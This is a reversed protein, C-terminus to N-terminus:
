FQGRLWKTGARSCYKSFDWIVNEQCTTLPTELNGFVIDTGKLIPAVNLFPFDVGKREMTESVEGNLMIDGVALLTVGEETGKM